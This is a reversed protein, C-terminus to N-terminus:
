KAIQNLLNILDGGKLSVLCLTNGFPVISMIDGITVDGKTM